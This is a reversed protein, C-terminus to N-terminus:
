VERGRELVKNENERETGEEGGKKTGKKMM